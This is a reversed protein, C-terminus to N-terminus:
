ISTLFYQATKVLMSWINSITVHSGSVWDIKLNIFIINPMLVLPLLSYM